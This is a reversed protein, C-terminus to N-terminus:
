KYLNQFISHFEKFARTFLAVDRLWYAGEVQVEGLYVASELEIKGLILNWVMDETTKFIVTPNKLSKVTEEDLYIFKEGDFAFGGAMLKGDSSIIKFVSVRKEDGVHRRFYDIVEEKENLKKVGYKIVKKLQATNM